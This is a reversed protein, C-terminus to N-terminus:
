RVVKWLGVTLLPIIFIAIFVWTMTGYGIAILDILGFRSMLLAVIVLGLAFIPRFYGPLKKGISHLAGAIRENFAHILGTGTEIFTGILVLQFAIQLIRSDLVQLIYNVPVPRELIAPYHGLMAFFFLLAPLLYVPGVLAGAIVAEKRRTIHMTAFLVAPLLSLQLSGYRLGSLLWGDIAQSSALTERILGGFKFMSMLFVALHIGAEEADRRDVEAAKFGARDFYMAYMRLLMEAFDCADVGGAGAQISFFCSRDDHEGALLTLLEVRDIVEAISELEGQVELASEDDGQEDALPM